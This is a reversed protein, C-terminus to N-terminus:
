LWGRGAAYQRLIVRERPSMLEWSWLIIGPFTDFADLRAALKGGSLPGYAGVSPILTSWGAAEWEALGVATVAASTTYVQPSGWGCGGWKEWPLSKHYRPVGYSTIGIGLGHRAWGLEVAESVLRHAEDDRGKFPKEPDLLIGAAQTRLADGVLDEVFESVRGPHPYGWIWVEIGKARAARAYDELLEENSERHERGDDTQWAGQLAVWRVGAAHMSAAMDDPAGHTRKRINRVYVGAGSPTPGDFSLPM